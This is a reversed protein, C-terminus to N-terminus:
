HFEIPLTYAVKVPVGRQKGPEWNPLKKIVDIAVNNLAEANSKIAKVNSVSGDKNVVFQVIVKGAITTPPLNENIFAALAATGGPFLPMEEVILFVEEEAQPTEKKTSIEIAGEKGKEGYKATAAEDKLVNIMRISEPDIERVNVNTIKGDIVILPNSGDMSNFELPSPPPPPPPPAVEEQRLELEVIAPVMNVIMNSEVPLVRTAYGVYSIVLQDDPKLGELQFTGSEDAVTGVSTHAVIVSANKMGKGSEDVVKGKVTLTANQDFTSQGPGSVYVPKAFALMIIALPPIILLIKLRKLPKSQNKHMMFIRNNLHKLTFGSAFNVVPVGLMQNALVARYTRASVGQELTGADALYEHNQMMAKRYLIILPNFWQLTRVVELLLLDAWHRERIHVKEHALVTSFETPAMNSSVYIHNFVSFPACPKDIRYVSACAHQEPPSKKRIQYLYFHQWGMRGLFWCVGALYLLLWYNFSTEVVHVSDVVESSLTLFDPAINRQVRYTVPVLPMFFSFLLGANLFWRNLGFYTEKRLLLLYVLWFAAHWCAMQLLYTGFSEM